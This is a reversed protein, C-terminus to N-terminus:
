QAQGLLRKFARKGQNRFNDMQKKKINKKKNKWLLIYIKTM